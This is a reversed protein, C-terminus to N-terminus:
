QNLCNVMQNPVTLLPHVMVFGLLRPFPLPKNIVSVLTSVSTIPMQNKIKLFHNVNRLFSRQERIFVRALTKWRGIRKDGHHELYSYEPELSCAEIDFSNEVFVNLSQELIM